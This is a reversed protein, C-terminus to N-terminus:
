WGPLNRGARVPEDGDSWLLDDKLTRAAVAQQFTNNITEDIQSRAGLMQDPQGITHFHNDFALAGQLLRM